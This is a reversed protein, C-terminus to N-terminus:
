HRSMPGPPELLHVRRSMEQLRSQGGPFAEDPGVYTIVILVHHKLRDPMILLQHVPRRPWMANRRVRVVSRMESAPGLANAVRARHASIVTPAKAEVRPLLDFEGEPENWMVMFSLKPPVPNHANPSLMHDMWWGALEGPRRLTLDVGQFPLIRMPLQRSEPITWADPYDVAIVLGTKPDAPFRYTRWRPQTAWRTLVVGAAITVATVGTMILLRARRQSRAPNM